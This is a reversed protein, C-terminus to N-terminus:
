LASMRPTIHNYTTSLQINAGWRPGNSGPQRFRKSHLFREGTQPTVAHVIGADPDSERVA